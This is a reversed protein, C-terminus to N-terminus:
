YYNSDPTKATTLLRLNNLYIDSIFIGFEELNVITVTIATTIKLLSVLVLNM